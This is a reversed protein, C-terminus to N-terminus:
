SWEENIQKNLNYQKPHTTPTNKQNTNKENNFMKQRLHAIQILWNLQNIVVLM